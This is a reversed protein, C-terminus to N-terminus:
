YDQDPFEAKRRALYDQLAEDVATDIAPAEYEELM